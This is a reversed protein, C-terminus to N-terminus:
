KFLHITISCGSGDIGVMVGSQAVGVKLAGYIAQYVVGNLTMTSATNSYPASLNVSASTMPDGISCLVNCLLSIASSKNESGNVVVTSTGPTFTMTVADSRFKGANTSSISSLVFGSPPNAYTISLSPQCFQEYTALYKGSLIPPTAAESAGALCFLAIAVGLISSKLM